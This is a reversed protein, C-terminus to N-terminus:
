QASVPKLDDRFGKFRSHRLRGDAAKNPYTVEVLVEPQTWKAGRKISTPKEVLKPRSIVLPRLRRELEAYDGPAIGHETYGAYRWAEGEARGLYVGQVLDNGDTHFGVVALTESVECKIKLWDDSRGPRYVSDLRKSVIGELGFKCTAELVDRGAGIAIWDVFELVPPADHLLLKLRDKREHLPLPRLDEGDHWLLDFAKFVIDPSKKGLEQRLRHFDGRGEDDHAVIEGDIIATRASLGKIARAVPAFKETWDNGSRTFVSVDIGELHAQARYGDWKVEHGWGEGIPPAAADSPNVMETFGPKRRRVINQKPRGVM